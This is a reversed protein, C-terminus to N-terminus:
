ETHSSLASAPHPLRQSGASGHPSLGTGPVSRWRGQGAAWSLLHCGESGHPPPRLERGGSGEPRQPATEEGHRPEHWRGPDEAPSM